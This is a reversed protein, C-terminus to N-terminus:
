EQEAPDGLNVQDRRRGDPLKTAGYEDLILKVHAPKYGQEQLEAVVESYDNGKRRLTDIFEILQPDM